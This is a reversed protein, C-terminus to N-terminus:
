CPRSGSLVRSELYELVHAAIDMDLTRALAQWGPVANVELVYWRGDRGQLLDVGALPAAICAAAQRALEACHSDLEAPEATAGRSVNTRWDLPNSRRMAWLKEGLVLVRLAM